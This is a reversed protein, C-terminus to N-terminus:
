AEPASPASAPSAAVPAAVVDVVNVAWRSPPATDVGEKVPLPPAIKRIEVALAPMEHLWKAQAEAPATKLKTAMVAMTRTAHDIAGHSTDPLRRIIDSCVQALRDLVPAADDLGNLSVLLPALHDVLYGVQYAHRHVKQATVIRLAEAVEKRLEKRTRGDASMVELLNPVTIKPPVQRGPRDSKLRDPGSYDTTVVFSKRHRAM